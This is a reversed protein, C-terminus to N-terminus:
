ECIPKQTISPKEHASLGFTQQNEIAKKICTSTPKIIVTILL